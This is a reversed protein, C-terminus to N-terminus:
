DSPRSRTRPRLQEPWLQDANPDIADAHICLANYGLALAVYQSVVNGLLQSQKAIIITRRNHTLDLRAILNEVSRVSLRRRVQDREEMGAVGQALTDAFRETRVFQDCGDGVGNAIAIMVRGPNIEDGATRSRVCAFAFSM